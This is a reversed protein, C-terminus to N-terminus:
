FPRQTRRLPQTRASLAKHLQQATSTYRDKWLSYAEPFVVMMWEAMMRNIIYQNILDNVLKITTQSFHRPLILKLDYNVISMTDQNTQIPSHLIEEKTFPYLMEKCESHALVFTDELYEMDEDTAFIRDYANDMKAGIYSTKKAFEELIYAKDISIDATIIKNKDKKM